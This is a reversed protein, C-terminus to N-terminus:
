PNLEVMAGSVMFVVREAINTTRDAIRELLQAVTLLDIAREAVSPDRQILELLEARVQKRLTDVRDDAEGVDRAVAADQNVVADLVRGLMGIAEGAMQPIDVLPKVLPQDAGRITTKAIGKAYDGMRELESAIEIAAVLRRLDGAIPQQTAMIVLVREQLAVQAQDILQDEDVIRQSAAVDQRALADVAGTIAAVVMQGLARLDTRLTDLQQLYHERPRM